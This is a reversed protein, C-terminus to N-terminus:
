AVDRNFLHQCSPFKLSLYYFCSLSPLFFSEVVFANAELSVSRSLPPITFLFCCVTNSEQSEQM